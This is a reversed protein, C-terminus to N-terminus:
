DTKPKWATAFALYRELRIGKDALRKSELLRDLADRIRARGVESVNVLFNGFSSSSAWTILADVDSFVEVFTRLESSYPVFGAAVVMAELENSALGLSAQAIHHDLEVGAEVVAQRILLRLEHPRAADQCNLGLRGGARLVRFIEALARPKDEVWHFVSNLYVVDFSADAFQSLDEARGVRAEFNGSAKSQAIEIRLPLPDIGVVWGSPGVVKGVYAALHGTGAGIDLVSEGVSINLASVLQKGNEFQYISTRDYASALEPTDRHLAIGPESSVVTIASSASM